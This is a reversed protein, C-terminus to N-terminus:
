AEDEELEVVAVFLEFIKDAIQAAEDDSWADVGARAGGEDGVAEVRTLADEIFAFNARLEEPFDDESLVMLASVFVDYLRDQISSAGVLTSVAVTLKEQVYDMSNM